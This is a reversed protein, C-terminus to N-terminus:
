AELIKLEPLVETTSEKIIEVNLLQGNVYEIIENTMNTAKLTAKEEQRLKMEWDKFTIDKHFKDIKPLDFKNGIDSEQWLIFKSIKKQVKECELMKNAVQQIM